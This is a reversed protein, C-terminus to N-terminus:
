DDIDLTVRVGHKAAAAALVARIARAIKGQRGIVKGMEDAAVTLRIEVNNGFRNSRVGILDPSTVLSGAIYRVLDELGESSNDAM